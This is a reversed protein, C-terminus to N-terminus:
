QRRRERWLDRAHSRGFLGIGDIEIGGLLLAARLRAGASNGAGAVQHLQALLQGLLQLAAELCFADEAQEELLDALQNRQVGEAVAM